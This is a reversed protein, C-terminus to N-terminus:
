QNEISFLPTFNAFGTFVFDLLRSPVILRALFLLRVCHSMTPLTDGAFAMALVESMM